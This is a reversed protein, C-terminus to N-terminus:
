SIYSKVYGPIIPPTQIESVWAALPKIEGQGGFGDRCLALCVAEAHDESIHTDTSIDDGYMGPCTGTPWLANSQTKM